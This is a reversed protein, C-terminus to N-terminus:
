KRRLHLPAPDVLHGRGASSFPYAEARTTIFARVPNQHIYHTREALDTSDVVRRNDYSRQWVDIKSKLRFSFGGKIYQMAKELSVEPAPTLILHVHDPMVVFSHLTIRGKSRQDQLTGILLEAHEHVQFLRRRSATVTTVFYTRVEQPALIM